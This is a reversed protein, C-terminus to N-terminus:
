RTRRENRDKLVAIQTESQRLRADHDGLTERIESRLESLQGNVSVKLAEIADAIDVRIDRLESAVPSMDPKSNRTKWYLVAGAAFAGLFAVLQYILPWKTIEEM